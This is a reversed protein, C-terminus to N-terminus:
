SEYRFDMPVDDDTPSTPFRMTDKLISDEMYDDRSEEDSDHQMKRLRLKDKSSNTTNRSKKNSAMKHRSMKSRYRNVSDDSSKDSEEEIGEDKDDEDEEDFRSMDPPSIKKLSSRYMSNEREMDRLDKNNRKIPYVDEFKNQRNASQLKELQKYRLRGEASLGKYPGDDVENEDIRNAKMIKNKKQKSVRPTLDHVDSSDRTVTELDSISLGLKEGNRGFREFQDFKEENEDFNYDQLKKKKKGKKKESEVIKSGLPELPPLTSGGRINNNNRGFLNLAAYSNTSESLATGRHALSPYDDLSRGVRSRVDLGSDDRSFRTKSDGCDLDALREKRKRKEEKM